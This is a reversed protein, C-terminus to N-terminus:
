EVGDMLLEDAGVWHEIVQFMQLYGDENELHQNTELGGLVRSALELDKSNGYEVTNFRSRMSELEARVVKFPDYNRNIV